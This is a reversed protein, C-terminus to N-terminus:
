TYTYTTTATCGSPSTVVVSAPGITGPPTTVFISTPTLSTITASAGGIGITTGAAFNSGGLIFLAGGNHTGSPFLTIGIVPAQNFPLTVSQGLASTVAVNTGCPAAAPFSFTATTATQTLLSIPAGGVTVAIGAQFGVGTLTVTAGPPATFPSVSTVQLNPIYAFASLLATSQGDANLVSVDVIGAAHPPSLCTITTPTIVLNSATTSGFKVTAGFQFGGGIITVTTGGAAPGAGPTSSAM